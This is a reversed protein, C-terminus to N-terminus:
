HVHSGGTPADSIIQGPEIPQPDLIAITLQDDLLYKRAVSQVQEATVAHVRDVYEDAVRWDLGSADLMGIQMAQYFVSDREYVHDAVAQTKVRELEAVSVPEERVRRVQERLATELTKIDKGQAPIGGITFLDPLRAYLSYSAGVEAAVESGRVLERSFRASADGDLLQALVELAYPEWSIAVGHLVPARYGMVLYPLRAPAKVTVRREGRQVPESRDKQIPPTGDSTLPGFYRRVLELVEESNVDGVVVVSANNPVYWRHYWARLEDVTLGEIDGMWGIVPWHYPSTVFATALLQEQTLARPNDDTRLRREEMVVQREKAFEESPLLLNRMRDSELAFSVDLRSSELSQFYATYDRGTFANETGGNAAIIRSLDGAPHQATGKFMMHELMHSIGTGGLYENSSGVRYWVQSVVVPARHDEKVLLKLGNDLHFEHVPLALNQQKRAVSVLAEPQVVPQVLPGEPPRLVPGEQQHAEEAATAGTALVMAVMIIVGALIWQGRGIRQNQM